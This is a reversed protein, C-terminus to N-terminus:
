PRVEMFLVDQRLRRYTCIELTAGNKPMGDFPMHLFFCSWVAIELKCPLLFRSWGALHMYKICGNPVDARTLCLHGFVHHVGDRIEDVLAEELALAWGLLLELM